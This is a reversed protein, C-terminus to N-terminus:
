NLTNLFQINVSLIFCFYYKKKFFHVCSCVWRRFSVKLSWSFKKEKFTSLMIESVGWNVTLMLWWIISRRRGEEQQRLILAKKFSIWKLEVNWEIGGSFPLFGKTEQYKWPTYSFFMPSFHTLLPFLVTQLSFKRFM